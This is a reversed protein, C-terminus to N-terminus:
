RRTTSRLMAGDGRRASLARDSAARRHRARAPEQLRINAFTGRVMVEHNGRRAGYSNFDTPKSATARDSVKGGPQGGQISGAPSIHDTTVSDGLVALVRAGTIDTLPAPEGAPGRPVAAQPRLDLRRDWEFRDGTPVPLSSGAITARSSTRTSSASVDGIDVASCCRRRFRRARDALHGQLYVHKGDSDKGLPETTSDITMAGPSRTPSWWRRRRSTTPACRRSSAARRLQPQREAGLAVVLNKEDIIASVEDPLPGSNGICTTCGYGVLNFGLADLYPTM